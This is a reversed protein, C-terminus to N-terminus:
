FVCGLYRKRYKLNENHYLQCIAIYLNLHVICKNSISIYKLILLLIANTIVLPQSIVSINAMSYKATLLHIFEPSRVCLITVITLNREKVGKCLHLTIMECNNITNNKFYMSVRYGIVWCGMLYGKLKLHGRLELSRCLSDIHSKMKAKSAKGLFRRLLIFKPCIGMM